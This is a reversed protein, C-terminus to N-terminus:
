PAPPPGTRAHSPVRHGRRSSTAPRSSPSRDVLRAVAGPSLFATGRATSQDVLRAVYMWMAKTSRDVGGRTRASPKTRADERQHSMMWARGIPVYDNRQRDSDRRANVKIAALKHKELFHLAMESISGSAVVVNAGSDAIAKIVGELHAEESQKTRHRTNHPVTSMWIWLWCPRTALRSPPLSRAPRARAGCCHRRTVRDRSRKREERRRDRPSLIRGNISPRAVAGRRSIREVHRPAGAGRDRNRIPTHWM